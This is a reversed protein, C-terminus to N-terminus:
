KTHSCREYYKQKLQNKNWHYNYVDILNNLKIQEEAGLNQVSGISINM